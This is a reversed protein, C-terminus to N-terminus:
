DLPRLIDVDTQPGLQVSNQPRSTPLDPSDLLHKDLVHSDVEERFRASKQTLYDLIAKTDCSCSTCLEMALQRPTLCDLDKCVRAECERTLSSYGVWHANCDRIVNSYEEEPSPM